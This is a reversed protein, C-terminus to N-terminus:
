ARGILAGSASGREGVSEGQETAEGARGAWDRRAAECAAGAREGLGSSNLLCVICNM